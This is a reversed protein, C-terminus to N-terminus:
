KIEVMFGCDEGDNSVNYIGDDDLCNVGSMVDNRPNFVAKLSGRRGNGDDLKEDITKVISPSISTTFDFYCRALTERRLNEKGFFYMNLTGPKYSSLWFDSGIDVQNFYESCPEGNRTDRVNILDPNIGSLVLHVFIKRVDGMMAGSIRCPVVSEIDLCRDIYDGNCGAFINTSDIGCNDGFYDYADRLLGPTEAFELEFARVATKM